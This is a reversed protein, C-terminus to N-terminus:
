KKRTAPAAKKRALPAAESSVAKSSPAKSPRAPDQDNKGSARPSTSARPRSVTPPLLEDAISAYARAAPSAASPTLLAPGRLVGREVEASAPVVSQLVESGFMRRVHDVIARGHSKRGDLMTLVIRQQLRPNLRQRAMAISSSVQELGDLALPQCQVPILAIDAARLSMAPALGLTPGNDILIADFRARVPELVEALISERGMVDRLASELGALARHGPALFLNPAALPVMVKELPEGAPDLLSDLLSSAPDRVGCMTSANCQADLDCILVRLGRAAWAAALSVVTTTKGVGGKQNIVSVIM